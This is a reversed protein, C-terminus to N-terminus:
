IGGIKSTKTQKIKNLEDVLDSDVDDYDYETVDQPNDRLWQLYQELNYQNLEKQNLM